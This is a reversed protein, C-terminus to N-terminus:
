AGTVADARCIAGRCGAWLVLSLQALTSPSCKHFTHMCMRHDKSKGERVFGAWSVKADIAIVTHWHCSLM